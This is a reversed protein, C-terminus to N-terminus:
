FSELSLVRERSDYMHILSGSATCQPSRKTGFSSCILPLFHTLNRRGRHNWGLLSSSLRGLCSAQSYGKYTAALQHAPRPLRIPPQIM